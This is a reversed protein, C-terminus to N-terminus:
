RPDQADIGRLSRRLIARSAPDVPETGRHLISRGWCRPRGVQQEDPILLTRTCSLVNPTAVALCMDTFVSSLLSFLVCLRFPRMTTTKSSIRWLSTSRDVTTVRLITRPISLRIGRRCAKSNWRREWILRSSLRCMMPTAMTRRTSTTRARTSRRHLPDSISPPRTRLPSSSPPSRRKPAPLRQQRTSHSAFSEDAVRYLLFRCIM